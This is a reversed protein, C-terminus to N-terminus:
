NGENNLLESLNKITALLANYADDLTKKTSPTADIELIAQRATKASEIASELAEYTANM